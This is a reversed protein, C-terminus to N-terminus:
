APSSSGRTGIPPARRLARSPFRTVPFTSRCRMVTDSTAARHPTLPTVTSRQIALPCSCATSTGAGPLRGAQRELLAKELAPNEYDAGVFQVGTEGFKKVFIQVAQGLGLAHEIFVKPRFGRAECFEKLRDEADEFTKRNADRSAFINKGREVWPREGSARLLAEHQDLYPQYAGIIGFIGPGREFVRAGMSTVIGNRVLGARELVDRHEETRMADGAKLRDIKGSAKLDLVANMLRHGLEIEAANAIWAATGRGKVFGTETRDLFGRVYLFHLDHSLQQADLGHEAAYTDIDLVNGNELFDMTGIKLYTELIQKALWLDPPATVSATNVMTKLAQVARRISEGAEPPISDRHKLIEEVEDLWELTRLGNQFLHPVRDRFARFAEPTILPFGSPDISTPSTVIQLLDLWQPHDRLPPYDALVSQLFFQSRNWESRVQDYAQFLRGAVPLSRSRERAEQFWHSAPIFLDATRLIERGAFQAAEGYVRRFGM